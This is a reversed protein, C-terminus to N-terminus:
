LGKKFLAGGALVLWLGVVVLPWGGPPAGTEPLHTPFVLTSDSGVAASADLTAGDRAFLAFLTLHDVPACVGPHSLSGEPRTDLAQWEGDRLVQLLFDAPDGGVADLEPQTYRFCVKIQQVFQTVAAGAADCITVETSHGLYRFASQAPLPQGLRRDLPLPASCVAPRLREGSSKIQDTRARAHKPEHGAGEVRRRTFQQPLRIGM